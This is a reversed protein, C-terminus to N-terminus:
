KKIESMMKQYDLYRQHYIKKANVLSKIHCNIENLHLCNKFKCYIANKRFDTFASALELQSMNLDLSSFGPTDVIFGENFPFVFSSTTTHKGRNLSKSIEQTKLHLDPVLYNILTSKGVGSQGAFCMTKNKVLKLIEKKCINKENSTFIIYNNKKYELIIENMKKLEDNNLLDMKSFYILVFDVNRS